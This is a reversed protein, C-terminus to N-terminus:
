SPLFFAFFFPPTLQSLLVEPPAQVTAVSQASLPRNSSGEDAWRRRKNLALLSTLPSPSRPCGRPLTIHRGLPFSVLAQAGPAQTHSVPRYAATCLLGLPAPLSPLLRQTCAVRELVGHTANGSILGGSATVLTGRCAVVGCHPGDIVTVGNLTLSTGAAGLSRALRFRSAACLM